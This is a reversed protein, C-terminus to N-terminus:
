LEFRTVRHNPVNGLSPGHHHSPAATSVGFRWMGSSRPLFLFLLTSNCSYHSIHVTPHWTQCKKVHYMFLRRIFALTDNVEARGNSDCVDAIPNFGWVSMSILACQSQSNQFTYLEFVTRVTIKGRCKNQKMRMGFSSVGSINTFRVSLYEQCFCLTAGFSWLIM